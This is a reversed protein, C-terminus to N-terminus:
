VTIHKMYCQVNGDVTVHFPVLQSKDEHYNYWFIVGNYDSFHNGNSLELPTTTIQVYEIRKTKYIISMNAHLEIENLLVMAEVIHKPLDMYKELMDWYTSLGKESWYEVDIHQKDYKILYELKRKKLRKEITTGFIYINLENDSFVIEMMTNSGWMSSHSKLIFDGNEYKADFSARKFVYKYEILLQIAEAKNVKM